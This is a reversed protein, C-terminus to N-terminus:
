QTALDLETEGGSFTIMFKWPGAMSIDTKVNYRGATGSPTATTNALMPGMGKMEMMPKVQVNGPDALEGSRRFELTLNNAGQKLTGTDNLLTVTYDGSQKQQLQKLESSPAQTAPARAQAPAAPTESPQESAGCAATGLATAILMALVFIKTHM